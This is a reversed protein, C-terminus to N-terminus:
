PEPWKRAAVYAMLNRKRNHETKVRTLLDDFLGPQGSDDALRRVRGM